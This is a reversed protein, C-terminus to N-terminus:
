RSEAASVLQAAISRDKETPGVQYRLMAPGHGGGGSHGADAPQQGAPLEQCQPAMPCRSEMAQWHEPLNCGAVKEVM